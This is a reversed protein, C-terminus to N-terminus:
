ELKKVKLMLYNFILKKVLNVHVGKVSLDVNVVRQIFELYNKMKVM